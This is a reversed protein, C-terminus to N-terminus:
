RMFVIATEKTVREINMVAQEKRKRDAAWSVTTNICRYWVTKVFSQPFTEGTM